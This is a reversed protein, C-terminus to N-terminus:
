KKRLKFVFYNIQDFFKFFFRYEFNFLIERSRKANMAGSSISGFDREYDYFTKLFM